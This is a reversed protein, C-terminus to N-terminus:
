WTHTVTRDADASMPQFYDSSVIVTDATVARTCRFCLLQDVGCGDTIQTSNSSPPPCRDVLSPGVQAVCGIRNLSQYLVQVSEGTMAKVSDVIESLQASLADQQGDADEILQTGGGGVGGSGGGGGSSSSSSSSSSNNCFAARQAQSDRVRVYSKLKEVLRRQHSMKEAVLRNMERLGDETDAIARKLV